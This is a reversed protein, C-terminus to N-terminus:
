PDVPRCHMALVVGPRAVDISSLFGLAMWGIVGDGDRQVCVLPYGEAEVVEPDMVTGCAGVPASYCAQGSLSPRSRV